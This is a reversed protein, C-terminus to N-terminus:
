FSDGNDEGKDWSVVKCYRGIYSSFYTLYLFADEPTSERIYYVCRKNAEAQVLIPLMDADSSILAVCNDENKLLHAMDCLIMSDVMKQGHKEVIRRGGPTHCSPCRRQNCYDELLKSAEEAKTCCRLKRFTVESTADTVRYTAYLPRDPVSLLRDARECEVKITKGQPLSFQFPFDQGIEINIDQALKTTKNREFWGGYLRIKVSELDKVVEFYDTEKVLRNLAHTVDMKLLHGEPKTKAFANDYDVLILKTILPKVFIKM